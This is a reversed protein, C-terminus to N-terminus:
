MRIRRRNGCIGNTVEGVVGGRFENPYHGQHTGSSLYKVFNEDHLLLDHSTRVIGFTVKGVGGGRSWNPYHGQNTGSM